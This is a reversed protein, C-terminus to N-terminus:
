VGILSRTCYRYEHFHPKYSGRGSPKKRESAERSANAAEGRFEAGFLFFGEPVWPLLRRSLRIQPLRKEGGFLLTQSGSGDFSKRSTLIKQGIM